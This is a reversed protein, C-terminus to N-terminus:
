WDGGFRGIPEYELYSRMDPVVEMVYFRYKDQYMSSRVYWVEYEDDFTRDAYEGDTWDNFHLEANMREMIQVIKLGSDKATHEYGFTYYDSESTDMNTYVVGYTFIKPTSM